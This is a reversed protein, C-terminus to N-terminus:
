GEVPFDYDPASLFEHVAAFVLEREKDLTIIHGSKKLWLLEKHYSGANDYLFQASEPRVTHESLSQIILLPRTMAALRGKMQEILELLSALSKLPTRNYAVSYHSDVPYLKLRRKPTYNRFLRYIRLFSVRNDALFFPPSMTVVHGVPYEEALKLALLAGMSLGVVSVTRCLGRLYYYGNEVETYWHRWVTEAMEEPCTGHGCLRPALVTYGQQQLFEGLLRMQAPSGTFGHVLLVGRDGGPLLFPEAGKMIAM